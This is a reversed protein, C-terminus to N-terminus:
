NLLKSATEIGAETGTIQGGTVVSDGDRSKESEAIYNDLKRAADHLDRESVINYRDFISRTKHGSIAMAVREPVTARILNRVGSRRLDHFLRNPKKNGGIMEFLGANVCATAWAGNFTKIQVGQRFFVWPCTPWRLDRTQKQMRLVELLEGALPITRAEDNKTEGAELRVV